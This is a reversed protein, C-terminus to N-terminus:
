NQWISSPTNLCISQDFNSKTFQKVFDDNSINTAYELPKMKQWITYIYDSGKDGILNEFAPNWLILKPPTAEKDYCLQISETEYVAVGNGKYYVLIGRSSYDLTIVFPLENEGFSDSFTYILINEPIGYNTLMDQISYYQAITDYGDLVISTVVNDKSLLYMTGFAGDFPGTDPYSYHVGGYRSNTPFDSELLTLSKDLRIKADSIKTIGPIIGWLCPLLCNDSTKMLEHVTEKAQESPLPIMPSVSTTPTLNNSVTPTSTTTLILNNPICSNLFLLISSIVLLLYIHICKM